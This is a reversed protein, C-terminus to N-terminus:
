VGGMCRGFCLARRMCQADSLEDAKQQKAESQQKQDKKEEEKTAAAEKKQEQGLAQLPQVGGAAGAGASLVLHQAVVMQKTFAFARAYSATHLQPDHAFAQFIAAASGHEQVLEYAGAFCRPLATVSLSAIWVFCLPLPLSPSLSLRVHLRSDARSTWVRRLAAAAAAGKAGVRM